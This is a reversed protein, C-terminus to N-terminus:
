NVFDIGNVHIHRNQVLSAIQIGQNHKVSRPMYFDDQMVLTKGLSTTMNWRYISPCLIYKNMNTSNLMAENDFLEAEVWDTTTM